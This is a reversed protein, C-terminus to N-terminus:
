LVLQGDSLICNKREDQVYPLIIKEIYTLTISENAWHKPLIGTVQFGQQHHFSIGRWQSELFKDYLTTSEM